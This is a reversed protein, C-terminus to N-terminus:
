LKLVVDGSMGCSGRAPLLSLFGAISGYNRKFGQLHWHRLGVTHNLPMLMGQRRVFDVSASAGSIDGLLVLLLLGSILGQM